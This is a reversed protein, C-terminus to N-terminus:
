PLVQDRGPEAGISSQWSGVACAGALRVLYYFGTGMAPVTADTLSSAGLLVGSDDFTYSGVGALQGRVFMVDAPTSWSFTQSTAAHLSQGFVVGGQGPNPYGPCNDCANLVGDGDVDWYSETDLTANPDLAQVNTEDRVTQFYDSDNIVWYPDLPRSIIGLPFRQDLYSQFEPDTMGAVTPDKFNARMHNFEFLQAPGLLGVIDALTEGGRPVSPDTVDIAASFGCGSTLIEYDGPKLLAMWDPKGFLPDGDVATLLVDEETANILSRYPTGTAGAIVALDAFHGPRLSGLQNCWNLSKAPATTVM